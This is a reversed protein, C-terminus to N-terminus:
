PHISAMFSFLSAIFCFDWKKNITALYFVYWAGSSTPIASFNMYLFSYKCDYQICQHLLLFYEFSTCQIYHVPAYTITSKSERTFICSINLFRAIRPYLLPTTPYIWPGDHSPYWLQKSIPPMPVTSIYNLVWTISLIDTDNNSCSPQYSINLAWTISVVFM